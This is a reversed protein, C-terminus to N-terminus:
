CLNSRTNRMRARRAGPRRRMGGSCWRRPMCGSHTAFRCRANGGKMVSPQLTTCLPPFPLARSSRQPRHAPPLVQASRPPPAERVDGSGSSLLSRSACSSTGAGRWPACAAALCRQASSGSPAATAAQRRAPRSPTCPCTGPPTHSPPAAPQTPLIAPSGPTPFRPPRHHNPTAVAGTPLSNDPRQPSRAARGAADCSDATPRAAACRVASASAGGRWRPGDTHSACAAGAGMSM